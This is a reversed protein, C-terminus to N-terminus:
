QMLCGYLQLLLFSVNLECLNTSTSNAAPLTSNAELAFVSPEPSMQCTDDEVFCNMGEGSVERPSPLSYDLTNALCRSSGCWHCFDDWVVSQLVM